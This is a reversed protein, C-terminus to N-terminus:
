WEGGKGKGDANCIIKGGLIGIIKQVNILKKRSLVALKGQTNM